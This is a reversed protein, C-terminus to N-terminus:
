FDMWSRYPLNLFIDTLKFSALSGDKGDKSFFRSLLVHVLTWDLALWDSDVRSDKKMFLDSRVFTISPVLLKSGTKNQADFDM